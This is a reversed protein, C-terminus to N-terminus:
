RWVARAQRVAEVAAPFHEGQCSGVNHGTRTDLRYFRGRRHPAWANLDAAINWKGGGIGAVTAGNHRVAIVGVRDREVTYPGVTATATLDTRSM